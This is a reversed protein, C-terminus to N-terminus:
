KNNWSRIESKVEETEVKQRSAYKDGRLEPHLEQLKARCRRISSPNSLKNSSILDLMKYADTKSPNIDMQMMEFYWVNALLRMDSDRLRPRRELLDKVKAEHKKIKM